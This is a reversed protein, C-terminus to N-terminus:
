LGGWRCQRTVVSDSEPEMPLIRYMDEMIRSIPCDEVLDLGGCKVDNLRGM